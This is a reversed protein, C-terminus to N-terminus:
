PKACHCVHESLADLFYCMDRDGNLAEFACTLHQLKWPVQRIYGDHGAGIMAGDMSAETNKGSIAYSSKRFLPRSFGHM